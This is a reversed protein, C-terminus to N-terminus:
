PDTRGHQSTGGPSVVTRIGDSEVMVSAVPVRWGADACDAVLVGHRELDDRVVTGAAGSGIATILATSVGLAACTVAANAAPGGAALEVQSSVAKLGRVLKGDVRQVVDLTALGSACWQRAQLM